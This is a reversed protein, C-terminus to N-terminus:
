NEVIPDGIPTNVESLKQQKDFFEQKLRLNIERLNLEEERAKSRIIREHYPELEQLIVNVSESMTNRLNSTWTNMQNATNQINVQILMLTEKLSNLQGYVDDTEKSIDVLTQKINENQLKVLELVAKAADNQSNLLTKLELSDIKEQILFEGLVALEKRKSIIEEYLVVNSNGLQGTKQSLLDYEQQKSTIEFMLQDRQQIFSTTQARIQDEPTM